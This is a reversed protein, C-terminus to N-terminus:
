HASCVQSLRQERQYATLMFHLTTGDFVFGLNHWNGDNLNVGDWFTHPNQAATKFEFGVRTGASNLYFTAYEDQADGNSFALYSQLSAGAVSSDRKYTINISGQDMAKIADLDFDDTVVLPGTGTTDKVNTESIVEAPFIGHFKLLETEDLAFNSMYVDKITGNFSWDKSSNSRKSGGITAAVLDSVGFNSTFKTSAASKNVVCKGDFYFKYYENEKVTFSLTHFEGDNYTKSFSFSTNETGRIEIGITNGSNLYINVYGNENSESFLGVLSQFRNATTKFTVTWTASTNDKFFDIDESIDLKSSTTGDFTKEENVLYSKTNEDTVSDSIENASVPLVLASALLLVSLICSVIKKTTRLKLRLREKKNKIYQYLLGGAMCTTM